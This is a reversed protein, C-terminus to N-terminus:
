VGRTDSTADVVSCWVEMREIAQLIDDLISVRESYDDDGDNPNTPRRNGNPMLFGISTKLVHLPNRLEHCVPFMRCVTHANACNRDFIMSLQPLGSLRM